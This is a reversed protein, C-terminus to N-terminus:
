APSKRELELYRSKGNKMGVRLKLSLSIELSM